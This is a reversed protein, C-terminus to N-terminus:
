NISSNIKQKKVSNIFNFQSGIIRFQYIKCSRKFNRDLTKEITNQLPM